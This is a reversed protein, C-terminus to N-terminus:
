IMNQEGNALIQGNSASIIVNTMEGEVSYISFLWFVQSFGGSISDLLKLYCEALLEDGNRLSTIKEDLHQTAIQLAQEASVGFDKSACVLEAQEGLYSVVIEEDGSLKTQLDAVHTGTRFNYELLVQSPEGDITVQLYESDTGDLRAVVLAFDFKVMSKGDYAYPEERSGSVVSMPLNQNSSFFYVEGYESMNEKVLTLNDKSQSCGAMPMLFLCLAAFLAIKKM